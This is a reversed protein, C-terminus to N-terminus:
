LRYFKDGIKIIFGRYLNINLENYMIAVNVGLLNYVEIRGNTYIFDNSIYYDNNKIQITKSYTNNYKLRFYENQSKIKNNDDFILASQYEGNFDEVILGDIYNYNLTITNDFNRYGDFLLIPMPTLCNNPDNYNSYNYTGNSVNLIFMQNDPNNFVGPTGSNASISSINISSTFDLCNFYYSMSTGTTNNVNFSSAGNYITPYPPTIDGYCFGYYFSADPRRIQIADGGNRFGLSSNWSTLITNTYIGSNYNPNPTTNPVSTNVQICPNTHPIIYVMDNNSDNPDDAPILANRDNANYILIISGPLVNNYCTPNFRFHGQAVGTGISGEFSGNNDDIIQGGINVPATPNSPNGM